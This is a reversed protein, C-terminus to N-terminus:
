MAFNVQAVFTTNKKNADDLFKRLELVFKVNARALLTLSPVIAKVPKVADSGTDRDRWEYRLVGIMWPYALYSGQLFFARSTRDAFEPLTSKMQMLVGKVIMRNYWLELDGGYATFDEDVGDAADKGRYVFAGATASDDRWPESNESQEGAAGTEGMGGFKFTARGYFDKANNADTLGQVVAEILVNQNAIVQEAVAARERGHGHGSLVPM